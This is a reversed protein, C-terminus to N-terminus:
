VFNVKDIIKKELYLFANINEKVIKYNNNNLKKMM